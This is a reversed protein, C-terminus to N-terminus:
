IQKSKTSQIVLGQDSFHHLFLSNTIRSAEQGSSIRIFCKKKSLISFRKAVTDAINGSIPVIRFDIYNPLTM